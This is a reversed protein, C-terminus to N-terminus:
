VVFVCSAMHHPSDNDVLPQPSDRNPIILLRGKGIYTALQKVSVISDQVKIRKQKDFQAYKFGVLQLPQNPYLGYIYQELVDVPWLRGVM